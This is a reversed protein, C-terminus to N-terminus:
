HMEDSGYWRAELYFAMLDAAEYNNPDLTMTQALWYEM